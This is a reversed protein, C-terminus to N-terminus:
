SIQNQLCYAKWTNEVLTAVTMPGVGGPSPSIATVFNELNEFDADGCFTRNELMNSGVDIVVAKPSVMEKTLFKAKGVAVVIIDANRTIQALNQTRSNCSTVTAGANIMMLAMPKGVINSRGIITVRKGAPDIDYALLLTMIGKPTCSALADTGLFVNGIQAKTFGDIDKNEPIFNLVKNMDLHKPLPSQVILGSIQPNEAIARVEAELDSQTIDADLHRLVFDMGVEESRKQKMKIYALSAPNSGVLVVALTPKSALSRGSIQNKINELLQKAVKRGDLIM